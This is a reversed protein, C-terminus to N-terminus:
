DNPEVDLGDGGDDGSCPRGRGPRTATRAANHVAGRSRRHQVTPELDGDADEPDERREDEAERVPHVDTGGARQREATGALTASRNPRAASTRRIGVVRM